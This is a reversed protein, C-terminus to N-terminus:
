ATTSGGGQEGKAREEAFTYVQLAAVTRHFQAGLASLQSGLLVEAEPSLSNGNVETYLAGQEAREDPKRTVTVVVFAESEGIANAAAQIDQKYQAVRAKLEEDRADAAPAMETPPAPADLGTGEGSFLAALQKGFEEALGQATKAKDQDSMSRTEEVPDFHEQFTWVDPQRNYAWHNSDWHVRVEPLGFRDRRHEAIWGESGVKAMGDYFNPDVGDRLRVRQGVQFRFETGDM